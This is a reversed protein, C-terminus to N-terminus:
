VASEPVDVYQHQTGTLQIAKGYGALGAVLLVTGSGMVVQGDLGSPSADDVAAQTLTEMPYHLVLGAVPAAVRASAGADVAAVPVLVLAAALLLFSRRM